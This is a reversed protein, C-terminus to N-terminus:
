CSKFNELRVCEEGYQELLEEDPIDGPFFSRAEEVLVEKESVAERLRSWEARKAEMAEIGAVQKQTGSLRDM